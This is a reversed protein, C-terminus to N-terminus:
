SRVTQDIRFRVAFNEQPHGIRGDFYRGYTTTTQTLSASGQRRHKGRIAIYDSGATLASELIRNDALDERIVDLQAAAQLSSRNAFLIPCLARSFPMRSSSAGRRMSSTRWSLASRLRYTSRTVASVFIRGARFARHGIACPARVASYIQGYRLMDEVLHLV